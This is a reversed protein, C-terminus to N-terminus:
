AAKELVSRIAGTLSEKRQLGVFKNVPKGDKFLILTPIGQVGYHMAQIQHEDVNIKAFKVHEGMSAALEELIPAQMRCPGCWPAWFDVLTVGHAITSEFQNDSLDITHQGM